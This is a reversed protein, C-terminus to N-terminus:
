SQWEFTYLTRLVLVFIFLLQWFSIMHKKGSTEINGSVYVYFIFSKETTDSLYFFM